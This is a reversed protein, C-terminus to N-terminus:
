QKPPGGGTTDGAERRPASTEGHLSDNGDQDEDEGGGASPVAVGMARRASLFLHEGFFKEGTGLLAVDGGRDLHAAVDRRSKLEIHLGFDALSHLAVATLGFLGSCLWINDAPIRAVMGMASLPVPQHDGHSLQVQHLKIMALAVLGAMLFGTILFDLAYGSWGFATLPASDKMMWWGLAGNFVTNTVVNDITQRRIHSKLTAPM